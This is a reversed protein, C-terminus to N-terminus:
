ELRLGCFPCLRGPVLEGDYTTVALILRERETNTLSMLREEVFQESPFLRYEECLPCSIGVWGDQVIQWGQSLDPATYPQMSYAAAGMSLIGVFTLVKFIM